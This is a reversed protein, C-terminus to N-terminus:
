VKEIYSRVQKSAGGYWDAEHSADMRWRFLPYLPMPIYCAAHAFYEFLQRKDYALDDLAALKYPGLRSFVPMHHARVLVNVSDIQIAGLRNALKLFKAPTAGTRAGGFGQASLALRRAEAASVNVM